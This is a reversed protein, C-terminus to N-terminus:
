RRGSKRLSLLAMLCGAAVPPLLLRLIPMPGAPDDMLTLYDAVSRVMALLGVDVYLGTLAPLRYLRAAAAALVAASAFDLLAYCALGIMMAYTEPIRAFMQAPASLLGAVALGLLAATGELTLLLRKERATFVNEPQIRKELLAWLAVSVALVFIGQGGTNWVTLRFGWIVLLAFVGYRLWRSVVPEAPNTLRARRHGACLRLMGGLVPALLLGFAIQELGFVFADLAFNPYYAASWYGGRWEVLAILYGCWFCLIPYRQRSDRWLYPALTCAIVAAVAALSLLLGVGQELPLGFGRLYARLSDAAGGLNVSLAGMVTAAIACILCSLAFLLRAPGKRSPARAHGNGLTWSVLLPTLTLFPLRSPATVGQGPILFCATFWAAVAVPVTLRLWPKLTAGHERRLTRALERPDGFEACLAEETKGEAMGAAFHERYDDVIESLDEPDCWWRLRRTLLTLYQERVM